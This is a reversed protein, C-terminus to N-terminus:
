NKADEILAEIDDHTLAQWERQAYRVGERLEKGRLGSARLQRWIAFAGVRERLRERVAADGDKNLCGKILPLLLEILKIIDMPNEDPPEPQIPPDPIPNTPVPEGYGYIRKARRVDGAAPGITNLTISPYMLDNRDDSHDMGLAHGVEHGITATLLEDNWSVLTDYRQEVAWDCRDAAKYSWALTSGPLPGDTIWIESWRDFQPLVIFKVDIVAEWHALAARLCRDFQDRNLQDLDYSVTLKGRCEKPWNAPLAGASECCGCHGYGHTAEMLQTHTAIPM